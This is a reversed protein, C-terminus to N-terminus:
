KSQISVQEPKKQAAEQFNTKYTETQTGIDNSSQSMTTQNTSSGNNGDAAVIKSSCGTATIAVLAIGAVLFKMKMM